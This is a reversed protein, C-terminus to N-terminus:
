RLCRPSSSCHTSSPHHRLRWVFACRLLESCLNRLPVSAQKVSEVLVRIDRRCSRDRCAVSGPNMRHGAPRPSRLCTTRNARPPIALRLSYKLGYGLARDFGIHAGWVLALTLGTGASLLTAALLLPGVYSHAVNYLAAGIRPGAIYGAFSVDPAFFLVAFALWSGGEHAYLYIALLLAMLGELRLWLRVSGHVAGGGMPVATLM